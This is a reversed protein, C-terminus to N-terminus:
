VLLSTAMTYLSNRWGLLTTTNVRRTYCYRDYIWPDLRIGVIREDGIVVKTNFPERSSTRTALMAVLFLVTTTQNM